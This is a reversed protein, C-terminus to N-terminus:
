TAEAERQATAMIDQKVRESDRRAEALLERIEEHVTALKAERETILAESKARNAEADAIDQRIARERESLGANLPPWVFKCLIALMILFTVLSALALDKKPIMGPVEKSQEQHEGEAAHHDGHEAAVVSQAATALCVGALLIAFWRLMRNM